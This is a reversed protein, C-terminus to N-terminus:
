EDNTDGSHRADIVAELRATMQEKTLGLVHGVRAADALHEDLQRQHLQTSLDAHEAVFSGKGQRTVIVGDRELELYARKVTIVSVQTTAALVRISPLEQGAQWDGIAIRHRIQEILQLYMPRPDAHSILLGSHM